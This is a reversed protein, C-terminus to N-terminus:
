DFVIKTGKFEVINAKDDKKAQWSPHVVEKKIKSVAKSEEGFLIKKGQFGVISAKPLIKKAQWSPHLKEEVKVPAVKKPLDLHRAFKGYKQEWIQRRARQGRRNKRASDAGLEQDFDENDSIDSYVAEIEVDDNTVQSDLILSRKPATPTAEIDSDYIIKSPKKSDKTIIPLNVSKTVLTAPKIVQVKPKPKCKGTNIISILDEVIDDLLASVQKSDQLKNTAEVPTGLLSKIYDLFKINSSSLKDFLLKLAIDSLNLSKLNTIDSSKSEKSSRITKRLDFARTKKLTKILQKQYFHLKTKIKLKRNEHLFMQYKFLLFFSLSRM